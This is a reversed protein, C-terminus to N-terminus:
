LAKEKAYAGPTLGVLSKFTRIFSSEDVYGVLACAEVVSFGKELYERSKMVRYATIYRTPTMGTSRKFLQTLHSKSIYFRAALADLSLDETLNEKIHRIIPSLEGTSAMEKGHPAPTTRAYRESVFVLIQSLLLKRRFERQYLTKYLSIHILEELMGILERTQLESLTTLHSFAEKRNTFPATLFPYDGTFEMLYGPKFSLIYREYLGTPVKVFHIEEQNIAALTGRKATYTKEEITYVTNDTLTLHLEYGDHFHARPMKFHNTIYHIVFMDEHYLEKGIEQNNM